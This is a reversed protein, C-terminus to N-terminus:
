LHGAAPLLAKELVIIIAPPDLEPHPALGQTDLQRTM